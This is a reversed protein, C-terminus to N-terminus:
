KKEIKVPKNRIEEVLLVKIEDRLRDLEKKVQVDYIGRIRGKSDLLVYSKGVIFKRSDTPDAVADLLLDAQAYKFIDTSPKSVFYWKDNGKVYPQVYAKFAVADNSVTDVNISYFRVLNNESFAGAVPYLDHLLNRSITSDQPYFLHAVSVVSDNGLFHETAGNYNIFTVPRAQHYVTDMIERGWKRHTTGPVMKEGYVPLDVYSNAGSYRLAYYLFGPLVLIIALILITKVSKNKANNSM